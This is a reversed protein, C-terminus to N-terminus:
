LEADFDIFDDPSVRFQAAHGSTLNATTTTGTLSVNTFNTNDFASIILASTQQSSGSGTRIKHGSAGTQFGLTPEARMAVPFPVACLADDTTFANGITYVGDHSGDCSIRYYYRQCRALDDAFPIYEFPTATDGAELQVGTIQWDNSTSAALNVQGGARETNSSGGWTERLTGSTLDSGAMLYWSVILSGNADRDFAGTTDAPMTITKYEWTDAADITYSKGVHRTNDGDFFEVIYTGTTTSKVYFSLTYQEASATGKKFHQLDQGEIKTQIRCSSNADLSSKATTVDMKLSNAFGVLDTVSAQSMTWTGGNGISTRFRDLAQYDSGTIGTTSTGRQAIRMASNGIVNRNGYQNVNLGAEDIRSVAM